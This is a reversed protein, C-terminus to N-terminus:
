SDTMIRHLIRLIETIFGTFDYLRSKRYRRLTYGKPEARERRPEFRPGVVANGVSKLVMLLLTM